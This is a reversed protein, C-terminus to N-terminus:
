SFEVMTREHRKFSSYGALLSALAYLFCQLLTVGSYYPVPAPTLFHQFTLVYPTIPNFFLIMKRAWVSVMDASYFVPTIFLFLKSLVVWIEGVDAALCYFVSFFMGVGLTMILFLLLTLLLFPVGSLPLLGGVAALLVVLSIEVLFKLLPNFLSSLVLVEPPTLSNHLISRNSVIARMAYTVSVSFFNIMIIGTLLKISFHSIQRGFRDSFIFYTVAFTLLPGLFSWVAGMVTRYDSLKHQTRSFVYLLNLREKFNYM